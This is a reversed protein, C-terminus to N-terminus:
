EKSNRFLGLRKMARKEMERMLPKDEDTMHDYGCLHFMAHATLYGMERSLSHGFEQAQQAARSVNLVIDGLFPAGLAPDYARSLLKPTEHAKKKDPYNIAPFSLVDTESDVNRTRSNLERITQGDVVSVCACAKEIGEETLCAEAVRELLEAAGEPLFGNEDVIELIM